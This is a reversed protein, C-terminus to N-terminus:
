DTRHVRNHLAAMRSVPDRGARRAIVEMAPGMDPGATAVMEEVDAAEVPLEEGVAEALELEDAVYWRVPEDRGPVLLAYAPGTHVVAIEGETVEPDRPDLVRVRAGEALLPTEEKEMPIEMDDGDVMQVPVAAAVLAGEAIKLTSPASRPMPFGPVPVLLAAVFERWGAKEPHPAWDGSLRCALMRSVQEATVGPLLAGAIWVGKSNEGIAAQAVVSCTNDYHEMRATPDSSATPPMHGCNMTIPGAIVRAGGAVIAEGGMWRSYDVNGRPVEVRRNRFSRHAIGAPALYGYIRGEDTVTLAGSADVDVPEAFWQAPPVDPITITHGAAVIVTADHVQDDSTRITPEPMVEGIAAFDDEEVERAQAVPAAEGLAPSADIVGMETLAAVLEPTPEVLADALAPVSVGTVEAVRYDRFTMLDVEPEEDVPPEGDSLVYEVDINANKVSEDVGVSSWRAWGEAVRRAYELGEPSKLDLKGFFHVVSGDRVVRTVLGTQVTEPLGNHASSKWQWHYAFPPERWTIAGPAFQRLGTSVGEMVWTHFHEGPLPQLSGGEPASEEVDAADAFADTSAANDKKEGPWHGNAEHYYAACLGEPDRVHKSLQRVCRDFAGPQPWRIKTAGEGHVWYERLKADSAVFNAIRTAFYDDWNEAPTGADVPLSTEQVALDTEPAADEAPPTELRVLLSQMEEPLEGFTRVKQAAAVLAVREEVTALGVDLARALRRSLEPRM